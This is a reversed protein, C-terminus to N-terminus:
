RRWFQLCYNFTQRVSNLVAISIVSKADYQALSTSYFQMLVVCEQFQIIVIMSGFHVCDHMIEVPHKRKTM